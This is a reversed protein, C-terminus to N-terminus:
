SPWKLELASSDAQLRTQMAALRLGVFVNIAAGALTLLSLGATIEQPTM